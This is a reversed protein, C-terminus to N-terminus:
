VSGATPLAMRGCSSSTCAVCPWTAPCAQMYVNHALDYHVPSSIGPTGAWLNAEVLPLFPTSFASLDGVGARVGAPLRGLPAFYYLWPSTEGGGCPHACREARLLTGLSVNREEWPRVWELGSVGGLPQVASAMQVTQAASTHVEVHPLEAQLWAEDSLAASIRAVQPSSRVAIPDGREFVDSWDIPRPAAPPRRRRRRADPPEFPPVPASFAFIPHPTAEEGPLLDM